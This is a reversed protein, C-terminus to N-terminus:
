LLRPGFTLGLFLLVVVVLILGARPSSGLIPQPGAPAPGRGRAKKAKAKAARDAAAREQADKRYRQLDIVPPTKDDRDV